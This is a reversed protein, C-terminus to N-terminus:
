VDGAAAAPAGGAGSCCCRTKSDKLDPLSQEEAM